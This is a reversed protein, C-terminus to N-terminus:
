VACGPGVCKATSATSRQIITRGATTATTDVCCLPSGSTSRPLPAHMLRWAEHRLATLKRTLRKGETKHKVIFGGDRTRGCYHTFGLFAFTEPRREGRRQRSLAAFRGFEILRTKDEHLTLGFGTLRTKLAFLMEQADAKNEFGM